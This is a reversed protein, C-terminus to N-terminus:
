TGQFGPNRKFKECFEAFTLSTFARIRGYLRWLVSQRVPTREERTMPQAAHLGQTVRELAAYSAPVNELECLEDYAGDLIERIGQHMAHCTYLLVPVGQEKLTIAASVTTLVREHLRPKPKGKKLKHMRRPAEEELVSRSYPSSAHIVAMRIAEIHQTCLDDLEEFSQPALIQSGTAQELRLKAKACTDDPAFLLVSM